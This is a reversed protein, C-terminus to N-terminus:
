VTEYLYDERLFADRKFNLKKLLNISRTNNSNINAELRHLHLKNFAFDIITKLAESMYGKCYSDPKLAYGLEGKHNEKSINWIVAYGVPIDKDKLSLVWWIATKKSYSTEIERLLEETESLSSHRRIGM